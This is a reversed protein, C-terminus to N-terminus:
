TQVANWTKYHTDNCVKLVQIAASTAEQNAAWSCLPNAFNLRIARM